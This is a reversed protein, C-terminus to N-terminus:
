RLAGSYRPMKFQTEPRQLDYLDVPEYPHELAAEENFEVGLGPREPVQLWGDQIDMPNSCVDFRWPEPPFNELALFNPVCAAIQVSAAYSVEGNPNHPTLAVYHSDAIAAIKRAELIGGCHSMDPQVIDAGRRELLQQFSFITFLREGTAVPIDIKSRVYAMADLNEHPVPEEFFGINYREVAKAARIANGVANFIGNCDIYLDIEPGVADRITAVADIGEILVLKGGSRVAVTGYRSMQQDDENLLGPFEKWQDIKTDPFPTLPSRTPFGDSVSILEVNGVTIRHGSM